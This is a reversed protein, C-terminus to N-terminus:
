VQERGRIWEEIDEVFRDVKAEVVKKLYELDEIGEEIVYELISDNGQVTPVVKYGKWPYDRMQDWYKKQIDKNSASLWIEFRFDYYNFVVAVKLGKSKLIQTMVAFYSMDFYGQYFTSPCHYEPHQKQISTRISLLCDLIAKYGKQILGKKLQRNLERICDQNTEM